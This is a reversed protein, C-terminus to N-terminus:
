FPLLRNARIVQWLAQLLEGYNGRYAQNFATNDALPQGDRRTRKLILRTLGPMDSRAVATSLNRGLASWDVAGLLAAADSDLLDAMSTGEAILRGAAGQLLAGLPEGGVAVLAWLLRQGEDVDHLACLYSHAQGAHDALEFTVVGGAQRAAMAAAENAAAAAEPTLGLAM